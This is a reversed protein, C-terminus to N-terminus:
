ATPTQPAAPPRSAVTAASWGLLALLAASSLAAFVGLSVPHPPLYWVTFAAMGIGHVACAASTLGVASERRRSSPLSSLTRMAAFMAAWVVALSVLDPMGSVFHPDGRRLNGAIAVVLAFVGTSVGLVTPSRM